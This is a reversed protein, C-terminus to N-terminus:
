LVGVMQKDIKMLIKKAFLSNCKNLNVQKVKEANLKKRILMGTKSVRSVVTDMYM